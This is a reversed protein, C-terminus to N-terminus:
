MLSVVHNNWIDYIDDLYAQYQAYVEPDNLQDAYFPTEDRELQDDSLLSYDVGYYYEDQKEVNLDPLPAHEDQDNEPADPFINIQSFIIENTGYKVWNSIFLFKAYEIFNCFLVMM